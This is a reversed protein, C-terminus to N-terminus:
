FPAENEKIDDMSKAKPMVVGNLAQVYNIWAKPTEKRFDVIWWSKAFVKGDVTDGADCQGMKSCRFDPGKASTKESDPIYKVVGKCVCWLGDEDIALEGNPHTVGKLPFNAEELLAIPNDASASSAETKVAPSLSVQSKDADSKVPASAPKVADNKIKKESTDSAYHEEETTGGTWLELGIGFRMCCRKIGDSVALKLIESETINRKLANMDVDGVEEVVGLKDIELKCKAGVISNDKGRIVEYSFNYKGPIVDVLRQTYIHHPVYDGFKGKPAPKVVSKPFDKILKKHTEKDM